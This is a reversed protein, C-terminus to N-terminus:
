QQPENRRYKQQLKLVMCSTGLKDRSGALVDSHTGVSSKKGISISRVGSREEGERQDVARLENETALEAKDTELTGRSTKFDVTRM